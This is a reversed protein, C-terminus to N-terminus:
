WQNGFNMAGLCIPSVKVGAAPALVRHYGLLSAPKPAPKFFSMTVSVKKSSKEISITKYIPVIFPPYPLLYKYDYAGAYEVLTEVIVIGLM